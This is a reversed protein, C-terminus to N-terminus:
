AAHVVEKSQNEEYHKELWEFTENLFKKLGAMSKFAYMLEFYAEEDGDTIHHFARADFFMQDLVEQHSQYYEKDQDYVKRIERAAKRIERRRPDM